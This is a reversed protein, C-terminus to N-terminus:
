ATRIDMAMINNDTKTFFSKNLDTVKTLKKFAKDGTGISVMLLNPKDLLFKAMLHSYLSPNNAIVGGDILMEEIGFMNTHPLPDFYTPAAASAGIAHKTDIYHTGPQNKAFYDSYFRPQQSNYDFAVILM